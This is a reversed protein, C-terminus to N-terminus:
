KLNDEKKEKEDDSDIEIVIQSSPKLSEQKSDNSSQIKKFVAHVVPISTHPDTLFHYNAERKAQQDIEPVFKNM